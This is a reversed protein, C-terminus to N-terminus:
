VDIAQSPILWIEDGRLELPLRQLSQAVCPGWVCLGDEVRFLAGHLSCQIYKADLDLFQDPLWNLNVGTHPCRNVFAAIHDGSRVVFGDLPGASDM